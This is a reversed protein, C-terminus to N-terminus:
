RYPDGVQDVCSRDEGPRSQRVENQDSHETDRHETEPQPRPVSPWAAAVCGHWSVRGLIVEWWRSNQSMPQERDRRNRQDQPASQLRGPSAAPSQERAALM